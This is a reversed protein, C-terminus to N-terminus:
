KDMYERWLLAINHTTRAEGRAARAADCADQFIGLEVYIKNFSNRLQGQIPPSNIYAWLDVVERIVAIAEEINAEADLGKARWRADSIPALGHWTM